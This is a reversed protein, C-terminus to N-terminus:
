SFRQTSELLVLLIFLSFRDQLSQPDRILFVQSDWCPSGPMSCQILRAALINPFLLSLLPFVLLSPSSVINSSHPFIHDKPLDVDHLLHPLQIRFDPLDNVLLIYWALFVGLMLEEGVVSVELLSPLMVGSGFEM